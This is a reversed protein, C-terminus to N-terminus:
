ARVGSRWVHRWYGGPTISGDPCFASRSDAEYTHNRAPCDCQPCPSEVYGLERAIQDFETWTVRHMPLCRGEDTYHRGTGHDLYIRFSVDHILRKM